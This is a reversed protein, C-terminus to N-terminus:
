AVEAQSFTLTALLQDTFGSVDINTLETGELWFYFTAEGTYYNGSKALTITANAKTEYNPSLSSATDTKSFTSANRSLHTMTTNQLVSVRAYDLIRDYGTASNVFSFNRAVTVDGPITSRFYVKASVPTGTTKGNVQVQGDVTTTTKTYFEDEVYTYDAWKATSISLDENDLSAVWTGETGTASIDLTQGQAVGMQITAKAESQSTFWAYTAGTAALIAVLLMATAVILSRKKM